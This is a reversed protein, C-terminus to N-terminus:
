QYATNIWFNWIYASKSIFIKNVKYFAKNFLGFIQILPSYM